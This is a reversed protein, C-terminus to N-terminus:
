PQPQMLVLRINAGTAAAQLEQAEAKLKIASPQQALVDSAEGSPQPLEM